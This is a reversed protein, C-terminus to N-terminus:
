IVRYTFSFWYSAGGTTTSQWSFSARDNAADAQIAGGESAVNSAFFTGGLENSNALNSAVPLSMGMLATGTTTNDMDVRGSVTVTNGVRLYQCSYATSGDM